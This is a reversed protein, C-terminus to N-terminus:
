TTLLRRLREVESRAVGAELVYEEEGGWTERIRELVRMLGAAPAASVRTRFAREHQDTAAAIWDDVLPGVLPGSQAYDDAVAEDPVGALRLLLASVIGTRDKGVFCHVAVASGDTEAVAQLAAAVRDRQSDLVDMYFLEIAGAEDAAQRVLEDARAAGEPDHEGFLSVAVVDVGPPVPAEDTRERLFRLDVVRGVGYRRAAVWGTASLRRLNDARVVRGFRTTGGGELPLGGLDRVNVCGEWALTRAAVVGM